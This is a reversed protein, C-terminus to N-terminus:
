KSLKENGDQDIVYTHTKAAEEIEEFAWHTEKVDQFSPSTVGQLPGRELMRNMMVIAQARTVPENPAFSGDSQGNIIGATRIAEIIWQAWHGKTDKFTINQNEEIHLQKFNAVVTAMEARTINDSARFNGYIDGNMIGREKIFAIPGAAYYDSPIDRFLPTTDVTGDTYGLIRAIMTAVQGRTVNKEPGFTGDLFGNIYAEHKNVELPPKTRNVQIITFTSFKEVTFRLGLEGKVMTVVEPLVVKKEGDSHEIFMALQKLFAKREVINVPIKVGKLPLTVHVPRNPMNTEITMPRAVVHVNNSELAEHVVREVRAREEIAQRESNKKVPVLRFYFNDEIGKMSSHPITVLGNETAIELSLGNERLLQLSQKPVEVTVKDIEDNVDPLVIRVINNDIQKAKEIAAKASSETLAVFDTIEGNAHKTREIEITTKELPNDGDIELGVQIKTSTTPSSPSSPTPVPITPQGPATPAVPTVVNSAMSEGSNGAINTALVKFTYATGNTLGTVIIPSLTGIKALMPQEVGGVYVKVTYGTITSGGNNTPVDFSVRVYSDGPTALVNTPVDPATVSNAQVEQTVTFTVPTLNTASVTVTATYTGVALGDKARVTFITNGASPLSTASPQTIDFDDANAGSIAVSVNALSGTGTNAITLTKTEQTGSTYGATLAPFMQNSITDITYTPAAQVVQTVTFTVPTLNTASVTVTATYTGVALDDKARVTFITNGASPLSTASPQTIDFDDANAGSIAVSVNALSGTGTNAITLTKTEQTGNTYGATLAPFMQNSITDITYTPAAQVVQMVTFTVPTLNTASVTVTATYTGVALGDKARVTFITNGASPLSTASPQTIDFDDANAGSIAVSVNALSGTGTNAITLTKTEQTGSTYGATLAPFMQNSITDITYTPAARTVTITYIKTTQNQATVIITITNLGVNLAIDKGIGSTVAAGNLTLTAYSDALTPTVQINGVNSAVNATYDTTGSAFAPSLTGTSLTLNSLDANNSLSGTTFTQDSGYSTGVSNTAYARYHYTTNPNLGSLDATFTGTTGTITIKSNITTPNATTAYVIGRETVIAGGDATVYGGVTAGTTTVNSPITNTTVTPANAPISTTVSKMTYASKNGAADKVIVNFYYTTSPLLGTVNFVELDKSFGTGLALGNVEIDSVTDMNNSSSQYVRYELDGQLTVDDTAKEWGLTVGTTSVNSSTITKNSITPTQTDSFSDSVNAITINDFNLNSPETNPDNTPFDFQWTIELSEAGNYDFENGNNLLTSLQHIMGNGSIEKNAISHSGLTAGNTDKVVLSLKSFTLKPLDPVISIGLDKFTFTKCINGGEAKIILTEQAKPTYNQTYLQSTAPDVVFGNSIIFKDSFTSFGAGASNDGSVSGGFDYTGDATGNVAAEVEIAPIYGISAMMLILVILIRVYFRMKKRVMKIGNRGNKFAQSRNM